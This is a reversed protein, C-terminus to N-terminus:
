QTPRRAAYERYADVEDGKLLDAPSFMDLQQYGASLQQQWTRVLYTLLVQTARLSGLQVRDAVAARRWLFNRPDKYDPVRDQMWCAAATEGRQVVTSEDAQGWRAAYKPTLGMYARLRALRYPNKIDIYWRPDIIEALLRAAAVENLTRIFKLDYYAPHRRLWPQTPEGRRIAVLLRYTAYDAQTVRHWGGLSPALLCQRMRYIAVVPDNRERQTHCVLPSAVEIVADPLLKHLRCLVEASAATGLMRIGEPPTAVVQDLFAPDAAQRPTDRGRAYWLQDDPTVFLKLM